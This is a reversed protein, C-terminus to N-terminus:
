NSVDEEEEGYPEPLPMWAIPDYTECSEGCIWNTPDNRYHEGFEYRKGFRPADMSNVFYGTRMFGDKDIALVRDSFYREGERGIGDYHIEDDNPLRESCPIWRAHRVEELDELMHKLTDYMTSNNYAVNIDKFYELIQEKKTM